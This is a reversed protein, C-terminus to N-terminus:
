SWRGAALGRDGPSSVTGRMCGALALAALQDFKAARAGRM